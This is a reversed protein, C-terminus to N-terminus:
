CNIAFIAMFRTCLLDTFVTSGIMTTGKPSTRPVRAAGLSPISKHITLGALLLLSTICGRDAVVSGYHPASRLGELTSRRQSIGAYHLTQHGDITLTCLDFFEQEPHFRQSSSQQWGIWVGEGFCSFDLGCGPSSLIGGIPGSFANSGNSRGRGVIYRDGLKARPRSAWLGEPVLNILRFNEMKSPKRPLM